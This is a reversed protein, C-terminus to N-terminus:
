IFPVLPIGRRFRKECRSLQSQYVAANKAVQRAINQLSGNGHYSGRAYGKWGEHYALYQSYADNLSIGNRANSQRGYWSVFDAADSFSRPNANRNGSERQYVEWTGKVAQAYGRASSKRRGPFVLLIRRREPKADADFASEQRIIALQIHKPLGWKKEAKRTSSYWGGKDDFIACADTIDDPPISACGAAALSLAAIALCKRFRRM